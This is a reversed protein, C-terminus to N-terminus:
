DPVLEELLQELSRFVKKKNLELVEPRRVVVVPIGLGLAAEIKSPTGGSAGSEKTVMLSIHYEEMLAQNFEKSFTGQMAIINEPRLGMKICERISYTSPLVRAFIRSPDIKAVFHHLTNVGALHLIRGDTLKQAKLAGDPFSHVEHISKSRPIIIEPREFRIYKIGTTEAAKIANKTAEAAFPHTADVLVDMKLEKLTLSLQDPPM